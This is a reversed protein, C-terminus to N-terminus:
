CGRKQGVPRSLCPSGALCFRWPVDVARSIGIRPTALVDNQGSGAILQFPDQLLDFGDWNGDIGLSACLRGPGACLVTDPLAGRRQRMRELGVVPSLARVLVAAGPRVGCVINFCWHLGYSRYVYAHGPTGFMSGYRLTQGRASHSAPDEADYAETEVIVGGVGNFLLECGILDPAVREAPREYFARDMRPGRLARPTIAVDLM